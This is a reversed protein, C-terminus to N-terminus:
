KSAKAKVQKARSIDQLSLILTGFGLWYALMLVLIGALPLYYMTVLVLTGVLIILYPNKQRSLIKQGVVYATIPGSLMIGLLWAVLVFIVLPIGVLSFALGFCIVPVAISAILGTMLVKSFEQTIRSAQKPIFKPFLFTLSLAILLLGTLMFLYIVLNFQTLGGGRGHKTAKVETTKGAIAAGNDIKPKANSTYELNGAIAADNKLHIAAGSAKANRGVKGNLTVDDGNVLADRGVSGKINLSTGNATLDQGVKAHADLSFTMAAVTASRAIDADINVLQGAVRINGNVKGSITVDQGACIIDGNVTADIKVTQGACFVDGNITGSIDITKGASYLSSNVTHGKDVNNTFKQASAISTWGLVPVIALAFVAAIWKLKKM